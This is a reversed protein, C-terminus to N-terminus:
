ETGSGARPRRTLLIPLPSNHTDGKCDYLSKCPEGDDRGFAQNELDSLLGRVEGRCALASTPKQAVPASM